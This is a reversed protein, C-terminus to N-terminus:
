RYIPVRGIEARSTWSGHHRRSFRFTIFRQISGLGPVPVAITKRFVIGTLHSVCNYRRAMVQTIWRKCSASWGNAQRMNTEPDTIPFANFPFHSTLVYGLRM